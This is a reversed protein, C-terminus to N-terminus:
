GPCTSLVVQRTKHGCLSKPDLTLTSPVNAHHHPHTSYSKPHVLRSMQRKEGRPDHPTTQLKCLWWIVPANKCGLVCKRWNIKLALLQSGREMLLASSIFCLNGDFYESLNSLIGFQQHATSSNPLISLCDNAHSCTMQAQSCDFCANKPAHDHPSQGGRGQLGMVNQQSWGSVQQQM